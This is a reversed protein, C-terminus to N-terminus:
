GLERGLPQLGLLPAPRRLDRPDRRLLALAEVVQELLDQEDGVGLEVQLRVRAGLRGPGIM